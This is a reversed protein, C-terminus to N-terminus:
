FWEFLHPLTEQKGKYHFGILSEDNEEEGQIRPKLTGLLDRVKCLTSIEVEFLHIFFCKGTSLHARLWGFTYM